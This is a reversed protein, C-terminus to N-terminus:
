FKRYATSNVWIKWIDLISRYKAIEIRIVYSVVIGSEMNTMM